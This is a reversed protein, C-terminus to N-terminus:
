DEELGQVIQTVEVEAKRIKGRCVELLEAGTRLEAALQDIDIEDSEIRQLIEELRELAETFTPEETTEAKTTKKATMTM